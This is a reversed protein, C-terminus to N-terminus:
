RVEKPKESCIICIMGKPVHANIKSNIRELRTKPQVFGDLNVQEICRDVPDLSNRSRNLNSQSTTGADERARKSAFVDGMGPNRKNSEKLAPRRYPNLPNSKTQSNKQFDIVREKKQRNLLMAQSLAESMNNQSEADADETIELGQSARSKPQKQKTQRFLATNICKEGKFNSSRAKAKAVEHSRMMEMALAKLRHLQRGPLLNFLHQPDVGNNILIHLIPQSDQLFSRDTFAPSDQFSNQNFIIPVVFSQVSSLENPSLSEKCRCQLTSKSFTRVGAMREIQYRYRIPLLPFLLSVLDIRKADAQEGVLVSILEEATKTYQQGDKAEGHRKMAVLLKNIQHRDAQCLFKAKEFFIHAKSTAANSKRRAETRRRGIDRTALKMINHARPKTEIDGFSSIDKKDNSPQLPNAQKGQSSYLAGLGVAPRKFDSSPSDDDAQHDPGVSNETSLVAPHVNLDYHNMALNKVYGSSLAESAPPPKAVTVVKHVGQSEVSEEYKLLPRKADVIDNPKPAQAERAREAKAKSEKFFNILGRNSLGFSENLLHPRLWKSLGNKNRVEAFRHDLLLVAGFDHRHRIVRGIAQNVARHAQQNYWEAGSLSNSASQTSAEISPTDNGFGGDISPRTRSSARAADLFERKLKVKPDMYPAFPLGTVVVARCMDDSFDIGESIKGRCVGMLIAGTSKPAAIFKKYECIADNLDSTSRPELVIAKRALLRQWPSSEGTTARFSSPVRPFVYKTSSRRKKKSAFFAAARGGDSQRGGFRDSSPGGWRQVATEMAGYSPFFVLVGGPISRCLTALTSGLELIYETDDRRGYKRSLEKGSVGKGIVRVFIQDPQIIHSNELEVPFKLGFEIACSFGAENPNIYVDVTWVFVFALVINELAGCDWTYLST